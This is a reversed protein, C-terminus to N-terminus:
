PIHRLGSAAEKLAGQLHTLYSRSVYCDFRQKGVRDLIAGIGAVRTRACSDVPFGHVHLNLSCVSALLEEVAHGRLEVCELGDALDIVASSASQMLPQAPEACVILWERPGMCLVRHRGCRSTEGVRRPWKRWPEQDAVDLEENTRVWSVVRSIARPAGLAVEVPDARLLTEVAAKAM